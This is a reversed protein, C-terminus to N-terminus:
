GFSPNFIKQGKCPRLDEEVLSTQAIVYDVAEQATAFRAFGEREYNQADMELEAIVDIYVKFVDEHKQIGVSSWYNAENRLFSFLKGVQKGSEICKIVDYM